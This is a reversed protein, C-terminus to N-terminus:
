IKRTGFFIVGSIFIQVSMTMVTQWGSSVDFQRHFQTNNNAAPLAFCMKVEKGAPQM